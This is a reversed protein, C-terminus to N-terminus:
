DFIGRLMYSFLHWIAPFVGMSRCDFLFRESGPVSERPALTKVSKVRGIIGPAVVRTIGLNVARVGYDYDGYAHVYRPDLNGLEAYVAKPVLVLKGDFTYCPVPIVSEPLVIKNKRTRGGYLEKGSEDAITGAILSKHSLFGSTELLVSLAKDALLVDSGLWLYFDFDERSSEAWAARMGHNWRLNGDGHIIRVSPFEAEVAEATQDVSGDDTLFVTFGDNEESKVEEIQRFCERLSELVSERSNRATMLIAVTRGM